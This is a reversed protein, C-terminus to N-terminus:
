NNAVICPLPQMFCSVRCCNDTFLSGPSTGTIAAFCHQFPLQAVEEHQSAVDHQLASGSAGCYLCWCIDNLQFLSLQCTFHIRIPIM